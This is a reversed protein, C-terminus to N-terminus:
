PLVQAEFGEDAYLQTRMRGGTHIFEACSELENDNGPVVRDIIDVLRLYEKGGARRLGRGLRQLTQTPSGEGSAFIIDAAAGLKNTGRDLIKTTVLVNGRGRRWSELVDERESAKASGDLFAANGIARALLHGHEVRNVIVVTLVDPRILAAIAAHRAENRMIAREFIAQRRAAGRIRWSLKIGSLAATVDFGQLEVLPRASVGRAILEANSVSAIVPGLQEDYLLDYYPDTPFTGSFGIRWWSSHATRNVLKWSDALSKDGEDELLMHQSAVWDMWVQRQEKNKSSLRRSLTPVM